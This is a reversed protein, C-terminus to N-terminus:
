STWNVSGVVSRSSRFSNLAISRAFPTTSAVVSVSPRPPVFTSPPSSFTVAARACAAAAFRSVSRPPTM